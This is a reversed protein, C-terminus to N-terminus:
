LATSRFHNFRDRLRSDSRLLNSVDVPLLIMFRFLFHVAAFVEVKAKDSVAATHAPKAAGTSAAGGGAAVAEVEDEDEFAFAPGVACDVCFHV